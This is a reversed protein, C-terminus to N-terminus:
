LTLNLKQIKKKVEKPPTRFLFMPSSKEPTTLTSAHPPMAQHICIFTISPSMAHDSSNSPATAATHLHQPAQHTHHCQKISASVSKHNSERACKFTISPNM